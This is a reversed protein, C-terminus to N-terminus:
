KIEVGSISILVPGAIGRAQCKQIAEEMKDSFTEGNTITQYTEAWIMQFPAGGFPKWGLADFATTTTALTPFAAAAEEEATGTEKTGTHGTHNRTRFRTAVRM